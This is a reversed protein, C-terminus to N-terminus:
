VFITLLNFIKSELFSESINDSEFDKFKLCVLEIFSTFCFSDNKRFSFDFSAVFSDSLLFSEDESDSYLKLELLLNM